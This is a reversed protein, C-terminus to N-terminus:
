CNGSLANFWGNVFTAIDAPEILGNGDVDGLLSPAAISTVWDNIFGAIDAPEVAGNMDWDFPCRLGPPVSVGIIAVVETGGGIPVLDVNAYVVPENSIDLGPGIALSANFDTLTYDAITDNDVDITAGVSLLRKTRSGLLPGYGYFLTETATPSLIFAVQNRNNISVSNVAAGSPIAIGDVVDGERVKILGNYAIFLDVATAASTDGGFVYHGSDNISVGAYNQWNDALPSGTPSGERHRMQGDVYIFTNAAAAETTDVQHIHHLGNDSICYGFNNASSLLTFGDIVDNGGLLRTFVPGPFAARYLARNTTSGGSTASEGAVFYATGDAGMSPRSAFSWFLGTGPIDDDSVALAGLQTWVSDNGETSPSYIFQGSNGVGMTGEAGTLVGAGADSNRWVVQNEFFVFYDTGSLTTLSGTFGIKGNGATFPANLTSVTDTGSGALVQNRIAVLTVSQQAVAIAASGAVAFLAAAATHRRVHM